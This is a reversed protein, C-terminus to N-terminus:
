ETLFVLRKKIAIIILDPLKRAELKKMLSARHKEVTKSSVNLIRAAARNTHGEVILQLIERERYSLQDLLSPNETESQNRLYESLMTRAISPSLYIEGKNAARIAILLEEVASDKLLYGSAGSKLVRRVTSEDSYMSLIVVRTNVDMTQIRRTTEIGNLLPMAIDLIAVDPRKQQILKLSERGDAAEGVFEIDEADELLSIISQRVLHHDDAFVIRIM